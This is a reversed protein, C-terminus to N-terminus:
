YDSALMVLEVVGALKVLHTAQQAPGNFSATSYNSFYSVGRGTLDPRKTALITHPAM